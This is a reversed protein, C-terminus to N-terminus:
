TGGGKGEAPKVGMRRTWYDFVALRTPLLALVEDPRWAPSLSFEASRLFAWEGLEVLAMTWVLVGAVAEIRVDRQPFKRRLENARSALKELDRVLQGAEADLAPDFAPRGQYELIRGAEVAAERKPDM